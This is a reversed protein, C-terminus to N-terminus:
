IKQPISSPVCFFICVFFSLYLNGRLFSREWGGEKKMINTVRFFKLSLFYQLFWSNTRMRQFKELFDYITRNGKLIRDLIRAGEGKLRNSDEFINCATTSCFKKRPPTRIRPLHKGAYKKSLM